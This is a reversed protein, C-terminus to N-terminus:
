SATNERVADANTESIASVYFGDSDAFMIVHGNVNRAARSYDPCFHYFTSVRNHFILIAILSVEPM